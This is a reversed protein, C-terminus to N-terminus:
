RPLPRARPDAPLPSSSRDADTLVAILFLVLTVMLVTVAGLVRRNIPSQNRPSTPPLEYPDLGEGLVTPSALQPEKPPSM